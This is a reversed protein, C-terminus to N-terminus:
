RSSYSRTRIRWTYPRPGLLHAVPHLRATIALAAFGPAAPRPAVLSATIALAAFGPALPDGRSLALPSWGPGRLAGFGDSRPGLHAMIHASGPWMCCCHRTSPAATSRFNEAIVRGTSRSTAVACFPSSTTRYPPSSVPVTGDGDWITSLTGIYRSRRYKGGSLRLPWVGTPGGTSITCGIIIDASMHSTVRSSPATPMRCRAPM